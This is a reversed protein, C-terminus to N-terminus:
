VKGKAGSEALHFSFHFTQGSALSVSVKGKLTSLTAHRTEDM